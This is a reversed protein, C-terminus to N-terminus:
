LGETYWEDYIDIEEREVPEYGTIGIMEAVNSPSIIYSSGDLDNIYDLVDKYEEKMFWHNLVFRFKVDYNDFLKKYQRLKFDSTQLKEDVSGATEQFKVELILLEKTSTNIFFKDPLLKKSILSKYNVKKTHLIDYLAHKEGFMEYPVNEDTIEYLCDGIKVNCLTQIIENMRSEESAGNLTAKRGGLNVDM